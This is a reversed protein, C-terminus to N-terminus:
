VAYWFDNGLDYTLTVTDGLGLVCDLGGRMQVGSGVLNSEDQITLTNTDSMGQFTVIRGDTSPEINPTATIIVPGGNGQVRMINRFVPLSTGPDIPLTDSTGTRTDHCDGFQCNGFRAWVPNAILLFFLLLIWKKM